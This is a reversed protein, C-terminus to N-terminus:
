NVLYIIKQLCISDPLFAVICLYAPREGTQEQLRFLLRLMHTKMLVSKNVEWRASAVVQLENGSSLCVEDLM